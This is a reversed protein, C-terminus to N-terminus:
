IIICGGNDTDNDEKNDEKNDEDNEFSSVLDIFEDVEMIEPKSGKDSFRVVISNSMDYEDDITIIIDYCQKKWKHVRSSLLIHYDKDINITMNLKVNDNLKNRINYAYDFFKEAIPIIAFELSM